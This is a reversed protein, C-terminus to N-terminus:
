EISKLLRVKPPLALSLTPSSYSLCCCCEVRGWFSWWRRRGREREGGGEGTFGFKIRKQSKCYKPISFDYKSIAIWIFIQPHPWRFVERRQPENIHRSKIPPWFRLQLSALRYHTYQHQLWHICTFKDLPQSGRQVEFRPEPTPGNPMELTRVHPEQKARGMPIFQEHDTILVYFSLWWQLKVTVTDIVCIKFHCM